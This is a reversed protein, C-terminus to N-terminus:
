KFDYLMNLSIHVILIKLYITELSSVVLFSLYYLLFSFTSNNGEKQLQLLFDSQLVISVYFFFQDIPDILFLYVFFQNIRDISLSQM